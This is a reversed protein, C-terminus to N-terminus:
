SENSRFVTSIWIHLQNVSLELSITDQSAGNPKRSTVQKQLQSLKALPACTQLDSTQQCTPISAPPPNGAPLLDQRTGVWWYIHFLFCFVICTRTSEIKMNQPVKLLMKKRNFESKQGVDVLPHTGLVWWSKSGM